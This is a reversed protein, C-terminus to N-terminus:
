STTRLNLHQERFHRSELARSADLPIRSLFWFIPRRKDTPRSTGLDLYSLNRVSILPQVVQGMDMFYQRAQKAPGYYAM